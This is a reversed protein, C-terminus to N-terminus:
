LSGTTLEPFDRAEGFAKVRQAAPAAPRPRRWRGVCMWRKAPTELGLVQTQFVTGNAMALQGSDKHFVHPEIAAM